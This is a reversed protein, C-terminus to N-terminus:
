ETAIKSQAFQLMRSGIKLFLPFTISLVELAAEIIEDDSFENSEDRLEPAYAWLLEVLSHLGRGLIFPATKKLFEVPDLASALEALPEDSESDRARQVMARIDSDYNDILEALLDCVRERFEDMALISKVRLRRKEGALTVEFYQLVKQKESRM